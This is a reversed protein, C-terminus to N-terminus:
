FKFVEDPKFLDVVSAYSFSDSLLDNKFSSIDINERILRLFVGSNNINGVGIFGKLRNDKIIFKKYVSNKKDLFQLTQCNEEARKLGMSIVCLGFFEVSNMALTGPYAINAGAINLGAIRGQEVANPWLANIYHAGRVLDFCQAVDGAAFIGAANTALHEDTLIGFDTKIDTEKVLEINPEVGKGVIVIPAEIVKGSDLKVAKAQGNGILEIAEQGILIEIGKKELHEQVLSAGIEDLVQSLVFKSKVIVKVQLGKKRLGYAAKLGILGGGLVCAVKAFAALSIIEKADNFTRFGSVGQKKVGKLDPLAPKAGTAILAVDFDKKENDELTIRHKKPDLKIVKKGLLLDIKNQSYFDQGRLYLKSELIDGAVLNSILCRCYAPYEEESIITIKSQSDKSRIAEIASIAAASNGIIYISQM